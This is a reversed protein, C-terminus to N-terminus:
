KGPFCKGGESEGNESSRDEQRHLTLSFGPRQIRIFRSSSRATLQRILATLPNKVTLYDEPPGAARMTAIEEPRLFCRLLFEDDSVGVGDVRERVEKLTPEPPTRGSLERARSRDLIRDKVNRDMSASQEDGWRGLAFQIVEDTVERYREGLLINIAAQSAVFQSFPTVMIPYGLDTRVRVIEELVDDLRNAMGIQSLQYRLNSIVGGPVQHFFQSHDYELPAGLPFNEQKAVSRLYTEIPRAADEDIVPTYGLVRVNDVINFLSPNSSGNALPPIATHVTTIGLKIAELYCLPALGTTCHSHLEVPLGDANKLFVPVLTRIREPTLLGAPDKLYIREPKLAQAARVKRAYYDDTHKPSLSYVIALVVEMGAKQASSLLYPVLSVMDNAPDMLQLRRIGNAALREVWLKLVTRPTLQFASISRALMSALPTHPAKDAVLRIREWPDERLERVCKKFISTGVLEMGVFGARDALSAVPLIMGTRMREAWLSMHGDRFTTNVFRVEKM